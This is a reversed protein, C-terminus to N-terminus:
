FLFDTADLDAMDFDQLLITGGGHESLDITLSGSASSVTLDDFGSLNFASLDILDENGFDYITDDGNGLDFVFVDVSADSGEVGWLTTDGYLEDDGAGGVLRDAGAGGELRNTDDNGILVDDYDSGIVNEIDILVDGEAHGGSATAEGLNVTVAADSDRYSVWDLGADGDLRDAGAAGELVDDGGSGWISDNGDRGNIYNAVANGAIVDNGSGAIFNEIVTDRAIVLNGVLGYVDSIGEPRLYVRQDHPDTRLDLTDNGGNDYITFTTPQAPSTPSFAPNAHTGTNKFYVIGGDLKGVVLDPNGDGDLDVFALAANYGANVGQFPNDGNTRQTFIAETTTGTNEFYFIDGNGDGIVLDADNDNDLDVFVPTSQYGTDIDKFPNAEGTRLVFDPNAPTGINEYYHVVGADDGDDDGVALDLDGDGDLDALTLTTFFGMTINDFPNTAGTRETFGPVNATGTNEFYSVHGSNVGVILDTDGDADLDILTPSSNYGLHIGNVPDTAGSRETFNPNTPTGTNEFYYLAHNLYGIVLDPDGDSDLDALAPRNHSADIDSPAEIAVFPNEEHTLLKFFEGLYGDLNSQYGYITDGTNINDPAGYLNQIAIIDAIMPTAALANSANIFSNGQSFYSMVTAQTSDNLFINSIGYVDTGDARYPGPHGLGLAHGIEHLYTGFLLINTTSIGVISSDIVGNSVYSLAYGGKSPDDDFTIFSIHANDDNVFEFKIGTVNTWADLAWKALQQGEQTLATIDATLVGGPEVDFARRTGGAREWDGDTLYDAIEDYSGVPITNEVLSIEYDGRFVDDNSSAQIYYTGTVSPSFILKKDILEETSYLNGSVINGESNFLVLVASYVDSLTFDYITGATLEVKIWDKDNAPELRGQFVDGLSLTYQTETDAGADGMNETIVAM